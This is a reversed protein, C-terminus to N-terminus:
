PNHKLKAQNKKPKKAKIEQKYKQHQYSQQENHNEKPEHTEQNIILKYNNKNGMRWVHNNSKNVMISNGM